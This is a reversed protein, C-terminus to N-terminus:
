SSNLPYLLTSHVMMGQLCSPCRLIDRGTLRFMKERITEGAHTLINCSKGILRRILLVAKGKCINALFGYYRIKMFRHPLVHLLFRRIFETAAITMTKTKDGDDRDKYTFSVRDNEVAKIRHNAIAIKHTYRGLYSLVQEPGAFPKKAYVIWDKDWAKRICTSGNQPLALSCMQQEIMTLYRKKFEKALAKVHFLFTDKGAIWRKGDNSLVGAPILCHIHFHDILTQSWTHLITLLGPTGVLHWQPDAAFAFVTEKVAAFLCSLLAKRNLLILSNLDHPVTFVMHFYGCPLLEKRCNELWQEKAMTQCKPCHRNRCSNYCNRITGCRDCVEQHGGLQATRCAMIAAMVKRQEISMAHKQRYEDGYQRFIGAVEYRPKM